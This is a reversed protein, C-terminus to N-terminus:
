STAGAARRVDVYPWVERALSIVRDADGPAVLLNRRGTLPDEVVLMKGEPTFRSVVIIPPKLQNAMRAVNVLIEDGTLPADYPGIV